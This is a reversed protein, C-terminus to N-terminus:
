DGVEDECALYKLLDEKTRKSKKYAAIIEDLDEKAQEELLVKVENQKAEYRAKAKYMEEQARALKEATTIKRRAM